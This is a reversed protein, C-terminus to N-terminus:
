DISIWCSDFRDSDTWSSRLSVPISLTLISITSCVHVSHRCLKRFPYHATRWYGAMPWIGPKYVNEFFRSFALSCSSALWWSSALLTQLYHFRMASHNGSYIKEHWTFDFINNVNTGVGKICKEEWFVRWENKAVLEIFNVKWRNSKM